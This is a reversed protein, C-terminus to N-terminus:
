SAHQERIENSSVTLYAASLWFLCSSSDTRFIVCMYLVYALFIVSTGFLGCVLAKDESITTVKYLQRLGRPLWVMIWLSIILGLSGVELLTLTFQLNGADGLITEWLSGKGAEFFSDSTEGPGVGVLATPLDRATHTVAIRVRALRGLSKRGPRDEIEREANVYDIWTSLSLYQQFAGPYTSRYTLITGFVLPVLIAIIVCVRKKHLSFALLSTVAVSIPLLLMALKIESIAPIMAVSLFKLLDVFRGSHVYEALFVNSAAICLLGLPATGGAGLGGSLSDERVGLLFCIVIIPVQILVLSFFFRLSWSISKLPMPQGTIALYLLVYKFYQRISVLAVVPSVHNLLASCLFIMSFLLLPTRFPDRRHMRNAQGLVFVRTAFLLIAIDSLWTVQRPIIGLSHQLGEVLVTSIAVATVVTHPFRFIGVAIAPLLLLTFIVSKDLFVALAAIFAPVLGCGIVTFARRPINNARTNALSSM